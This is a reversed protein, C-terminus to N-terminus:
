QGALFAALREIDGDDLARAVANMGGDADNRREGNRWAALQQQLYRSDQGALLPVGGRRATDSDGHCQSCAVIGRQADGQAFLLATAADKGSGDGRMAPLQAFYAVIDALDSDDVSRAMMEMFDHRRRGQRFDM